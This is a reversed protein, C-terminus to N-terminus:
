GKGTQLLWLRALDATGDNGHVTQLLQAARGKQGAQAYALALHLKADEPHKLPGKKLAQEM